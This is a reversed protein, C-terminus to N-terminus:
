AAGYVQFDIFAPALFSDANEKIFGDTAPDISQIIGDRIVVEHNYLWDNGTFLKEARITKQM